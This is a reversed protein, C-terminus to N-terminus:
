IPSLRRLADLIRGAGRVLTRQGPRSLFDTQTVFRGRADRLVQVDRGQRQFRTVQFGLTSARQRQEQFKQMAIDVMFDTAGGSLIERLRERLSDRDPADEFDIDLRDLVDAFEDPM